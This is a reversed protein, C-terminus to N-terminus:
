GQWNLPRASPLSLMQSERFKLKVDEDTTVAGSGLLSHPLSLTESSPAQTKSYRTSKSAPQTIAGNQGINKVLGPLRRWSELTSLEGRLSSMVRSILKPPLLFEEWSTTQKFHSNFYHLLTPSSKSLTKDSHFRSAVDAMINLIGPIPIVTLPAAGCIQQRLALARLLHGAIISKATFKSTWHVTSSNDCQIGASFFQLTPLHHELILWGILVAAMELDNISILGRDLLDIIDPPFPVTWVVFRVTGDAQPIIWVGGAAHKCADTYGHINPDRPILQAVNVPRNVMERFLWGFDSFAQRMEKTLNIYGRKETKMAAWIPTFLGRSGPIGMSAHHLTGAIHQLERTKMNKRKQLKRLKTRIKQVKEPPLFITFNAGDLIWGLIEKVHAWMGEHKDLKKESIPDGGNHGTVKPPPFISHIGHLMARSTHLLKEQTVNDVCGIFDDVFVEILAMVSNLDSTPLDNFNHPLMRHEFPHAPLPTKLLSSIIDRATESAACFFAPSECWGMQLCNPVVIQLDDMNTHKTSTDRPIIYCFNWADVDNVILRWFGDKIDLKAFMFTKNKIQGDALTRIIRRLVNGLETMATEPAQKLTTDNVSHFKGQPKTSKVAFSLDLICRFKRSKHPIMAVPSLKLKPPINNKISGWTVVRAFGKDVKEATESLLCARAIPDKATPHSGYRLAALIQDHTWDDGCDVPCGNDAYSRLLNSAPHNMAPGSPNMLKPQSTKSKGLEVTHNGM